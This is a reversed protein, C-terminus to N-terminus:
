HRYVCQAPPVDQSVTPDITVARDLLPLLATVTGSATILKWQSVPNDVGLGRASSDRILQQWLDRLNDADPPTTQEVADKVRSFSQRLQIVHSM